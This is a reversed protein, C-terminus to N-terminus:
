VIKGSSDIANGAADEDDPIFHPISRGSSDKDRGMYPERSPIHPPARGKDPDVSDTGIESETDESDDDDSDDDNSDDDDDYSDDEDDDDSDENVPSTAPRSYRASKKQSVKRALAKLRSQHAPRSVASERPSSRSNEEDWTYRHWSKRPLNNREYQAMAHHHQARSYHGKHEMDAALAEFRDGAPINLVGVAEEQEERKQYFSGRRALLLDLEDDIDELSFLAKLSHLPSLDSSRLNRRTVTEHVALPQQNLWLGLLTLSLLFAILILQLPKM